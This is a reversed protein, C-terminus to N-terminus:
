LLVVPELLPSPSGSGKPAGERFRSRKLEGKNGWHKNKSLDDINGFIETLTFKFVYCHEISDYIRCVTAPYYQILLTLYYIHLVKIKFSSVSTNIGLKIVNYTGTGKYVKVSMM